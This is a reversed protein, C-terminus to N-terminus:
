GQYHKQNASVFNGRARGNLLVVWIQATIRWWYPIEATTEPTTLHGSNEWAPENSLLLHCVSLPNRASVTSKMKSYKWPQLQQLKYKLM